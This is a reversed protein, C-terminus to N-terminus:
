PMPQDTLFFSDIKCSQTGPLHTYTSCYGWVFTELIVRSERRLLYLNRCKLKWEISTNDDIYKCIKIRCLLTLLEKRSFEVVCKQLSFVGNRNTNLGTAWSPAWTEHERYTKPTWTLVEVQSRSLLKMEDMIFVLRGCPIHFVWYIPEDMTWKTTLVSWPHFNIIKNSMLPTQRCGCSEFSTYNSECWFKM